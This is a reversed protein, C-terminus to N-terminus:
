VAHGAGEAAVRLAAGAVDCGPEAALLRDFSRLTQDGGSFLRVVDELGELDLRCVCGQPGQQVLFSRGPLSRVIEVARADLGFGQIYDEDRATRNGFFFKTPCQEVVTRSIESDIVDSLSQTALLVAANRKRLTALRDRVYGAFLPDALVRWFEDIVLLTPAKGLLADIRDFLCHLVPMRLEEDALFPSIEFGYFGPTGDFGFSKAPSDFVWAYEGDGVWKRMGRFLDSGPDLADAIHRLRRREPAVSCAARVARELEATEGVTLDSKRLLFEVLRRLFTPNETTTLPNLGTPKGTRFTFYRKGIGAVALHGGRDKDFLVVNAGIAHAHAMIWGLLVTKGSGSPGTILANALDGVHLSLRYPVQYPTELHALPLGWPTTRPGRAANHLGALAAFNRNTLTVVRPAFRWKGPFMAWHSCAIALDERAVTFGSRNLAREVAGVGANLSAMSSAATDGRGIALVSLWARGLLTRGAVADDLMSAIEQVQSKSDDESALLKRRQRRVQELAFERSVYRWGVCAVFESPVWLLRLLADADVMDPYEAVGLMAGLTVSSPLRFEIHDLEPYAIRAMGMRDALVSEGIEIDRQRLELLYNFFRAIESCARGDRQEVGLPRLRFSELAGALRNGYEDLESKTAEVRGAIRQGSPARLKDLLAGEIGRGCKEIAVYLRLDFVGRRDLANHYRETMDLAPVVPVRGRDIQTRQKVFYVKLTLDDRALAKIADATARYRDAVDEESAPHPDLGEVEFVKVVQLDRTLVTTDDLHESLGAIGAADSERAARRPSPDAM